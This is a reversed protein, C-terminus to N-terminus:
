FRQVRDGARHVGDGGCAGHHPDRHRHRNQEPEHFLGPGGSKWEVRYGTARLESDWSAGIYDPGPTLGLGTVQEPPGTVPADQTSRNTVRMDAFSNADNGSADQLAAADDSSSPDTYSVTVSQGRYITAALRLSVGNTVGSRVNVAEVVVTTGDARVTLASAPPLKGSGLDLTESMTLYVHTGAAPVEASTFAPGATDTAVTTANATGSPDSTGVANIASVRYHRTAGATLGTHSYTTGDHSAVLETWPANGDSSWEIKYGTIASNGDDDPASWSLDIQTAGNATATLDTPAGPATLTRLKVSYVQGVDEVLDLYSPDEFTITFPGNSPQTARGRTAGIELEYTGAPLFPFTELDVSRSDSYEIDRIRYNTSNIDFERPQLDGRQVTEPLEEGYDTGSTM